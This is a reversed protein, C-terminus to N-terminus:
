REGALLWLALISRATWAATRPWNWRVLRRAARADFGGSLRRHLPVMVLGTLAWIGALLAGAAWAAAQAAGTLRPLLAIAAAAEILMLPAVVWTTRRQHDDAFHGFQQREARPFLPYHVLQVFWILGTMALTAAAHAILLADLDPM